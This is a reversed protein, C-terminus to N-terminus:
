LSRYIVYGDLCLRSVSNGLFIDDNGNGIRRSIGVQAIKIRFVHFHFGALCRCGSGSSFGYSEVIVIVDNGNIEQDTYQSAFQPYLEPDKWSTEIHPLKDYENIVNQLVKYEDGEKALFYIEIDDSLGSVLEKTKDTLTYVDESTLDVKIDLQGVVLNVLIVIVLVAVCVVSSYVGQKFNRGRLNSKKKKTKVEPVMEVAEAQEENLADQTDANLTDEVNENAINDNATNENAVNENAINENEMNENNNENVTKMEKRFSKLEM